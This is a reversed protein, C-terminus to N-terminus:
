KHSSAPSSPAANPHGVLEVEYRGQKVSLPMVSISRVCNTSFVPISGAVPEKCFLKAEKSENGSIKTAAPIKYRSNYVLRCKCREGVFNTSQPLISRGNGPHFGPLRVM